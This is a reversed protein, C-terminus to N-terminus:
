PPPQQSAVVGGRRYLVHHPTHASRTLSVGPEYQDLIFDAMEDLYQVLRAQQPDTLVQPPVSSRRGRTNKPAGVSGSIRHNTRASRVDRM